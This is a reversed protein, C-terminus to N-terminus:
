QGMRELRMWSGRRLTIDSARLTNQSWRLVFFGPTGSTILNGQVSVATRESPYSLGASPPAFNSNAAIRTDNGATGATGTAQFTWANATWKNGTPGVFTFKIDADTAATFVLYADLAYVGDAAVPLVMDADDELTTTNNRVTDVPKAVHLANSPTQRDAASVVGLALWTQDQRLLIVRDDLVPSYSGLIGAPIIGGALNVLLPNVQTVKGVRVGNDPPMAETLAKAFNPSTM